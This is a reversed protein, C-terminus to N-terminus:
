AARKWKSKKAPEPEPEGKAAAKAKAKAEKEKAKAAAAKEKAKVKKAKKRDIHRQSHGATAAVLVGGVLSLNKLFQELEEDRKAEDEEKWFPHSLATTVGALGALGLAASRPARSLALASALAISAIGHAKVLDVTKVDELGLEELAPEVTPAVRAAREEPELYSQVGGYVFWSALMPRALARM